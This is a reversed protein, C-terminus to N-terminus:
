SPFFLFFSNLTCVPRNKYSVIIVYTNIEKKRKEWQKKCELVLNQTTIRLNNGIIEEM